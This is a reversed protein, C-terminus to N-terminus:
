DNYGCQYPNQSKLVRNQLYDIIQKRADRSLKKAEKLAKSDREVKWM